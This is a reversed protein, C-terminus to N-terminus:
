ADGWSVMSAAFLLFHLLSTLVLELALVKVSFQFARHIEFRAPAKLYLRIWRRTRSITWNSLCVALIELFALLSMGFLFLKVEESYILIVALVSTQFVALCATRLNLNSSLGDGTYIETTARPDAHLLDALASGIQVRDYIIVLRMVFAFAAALVVNEISGNGNQVIVSSYLLPPLLLQSIWLPGSFSWHFVL